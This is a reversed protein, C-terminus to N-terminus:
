RGVAGKIPYDGPKVVGAGLDASVVGDAFIPLDHLVDLIDMAGPVRPAAGPLVAIVAVIIRQADLHDVEVVALVGIGFGLVPGIDSQAGIQDVFVVNANVIDHAM